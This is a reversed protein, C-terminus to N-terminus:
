YAPVPRAEVVPEDQRSRRRRFRQELGYYSAIALPIALLEREWPQGWSPAVNMLLAHYLYLGYSITGAAVLWRASVLKKVVTAPGEVTVMVVLWACALWFLPTLILTAARSHDAAQGAVLSGLVFGFAAATPLSTWVPARRIRRATFAAACGVALPASQLFPATWPPPALVGYSMAADIAAVLVAVLGLAAAIVRPPIRRRLLLLLMFPWLAYFQEQMSLSWLHLLPRSLQGYGAAVNAGFVASFGVSSLAQREPVGGQGYRLVLANLIVFAALAVALAPGLRRLRREYFGRLSVRGRRDHEDLLMSTILFGSLVFFLMVSFVSGLVVLEHGVMVAIVAIGRIGDLPRVRGGNRV